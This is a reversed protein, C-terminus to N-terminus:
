SRTFIIKIYKGPDKLMQYFAEKVESFDMEHTVLSKVTIHGNQILEMMYNGHHRIKNLNNEPCIMTLNKGQFHHPSFKRGHEPHGYSVITGGNKIKGIMHDFTDGNHTLDDDMMDIGIDAEAQDKIITQFNEDMPNATKDIGLTTALERRMPYLDWGYVNKFGLHKALQTTVLGSPGLGLLLLDNNKYEKKLENESNMFPMLVRSAAIVLELVSIYKDELIDPTKLVATHDVNVKSYECFAGITCWWSVRDGKKFETINKGIEQIYGGTEHGFVMPFGYGANGNFIGPDSGNCICYSVNKVLIDREAPASPEPIDVLELNNKESMYWAKM